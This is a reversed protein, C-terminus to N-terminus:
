LLRTAVNCSVQSEYVYDNGADVEAKKNWKMRKRSLMDSSPIGTVLPLQESDPLDRPHKGLCCVERNGTALAAERLHVQLLIVDPYATLPQDNYAFSLTDIVPWPYTGAHTHTHPPPPVWYVSISITVCNGM